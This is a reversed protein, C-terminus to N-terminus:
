EEPQRRYPASAEKVTGCLSALRKSSETRVLLTLAAEVLETKTKLGTLERAENLLHDDINITTKM